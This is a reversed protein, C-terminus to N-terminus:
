LFVLLSCISLCIRWKREQTGAFGFLIQWRGHLLSSDIFAFCWMLFIWWYSNFANRAIPLIWIYLINLKRRDAQKNNEYWVKNVYLKMQTVKESQPNRLPPGEHLKQLWGRCSCPGACMHWHELGVPSTTLVSDLHPVRQKYISSWTRIGHCIFCFIKSVLHAFNCSDPMVSHKECSLFIKEVIFSNHIEWIFYKFLHIIVVAVLVVVSDDLLM